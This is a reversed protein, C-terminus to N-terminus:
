KKLEQELKSVVFKLHSQAFTLHVLVSADYADILARQLLAITREVIDREAAKM